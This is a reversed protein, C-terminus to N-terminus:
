QLNWRLNHIWSFSTTICQLNCQSSNTSHKKNERKVTSMLNATFISNLNGDRESTKDANLTTGGNCLFKRRDRM